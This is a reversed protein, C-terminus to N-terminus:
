IHILSLAYVPGTSLGALTTPDLLADDTRDPGAGNTMQAVFREYDLAAGSRDYGTFSIPGAPVDTDAVAVSPVLTTATAPSSTTSAEAETSDNTCAFLGVVVTLVAIVAAPGKSPKWM